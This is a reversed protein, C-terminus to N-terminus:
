YSLNSFDNRVHQTRCVYQRCLEQFMYRYIYISEYIILFSIKGFIHEFLLPKVIMVCNIFYKFEFPKKKVHQQLLIPIFTSKLKYPYQM